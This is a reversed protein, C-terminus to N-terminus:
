FYINWIRYIYKIGARKLRSKKIGVGSTFYIPKEAKKFILATRCEKSYHFFLGTNRHRSKNM